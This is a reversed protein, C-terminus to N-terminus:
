QTRLWFYTNSDLLSCFLFAYSNSIIKMFINRGLECVSFDSELSQEGICRCRFSIDWRCSVQLTFHVFTNLSWFQGYVVIRFWPQLTFQFSVTQNSASAWYVSAGAIPSHRFGINDRLLFSKTTIFKISVSTDKYTTETLQEQIPNDHFSFSRKENENQSVFWLSNKRPKTQQIIDIKQKIHKQRSFSLWSFTWSRTTSRLCSHNSIIRAGPTDNNHNCGKYTARKRASGKSNDSVDNM